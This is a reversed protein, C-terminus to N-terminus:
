AVINKIAKWVETTIADSTIISQLVTQTLSGYLWQKGINFVTEWEQDDINTSSGDLHDFVKYGICHTKFFEKWSDYNLRDLDFLLPVYPKINTIGYIKETHNSKPDSSSSEPMM